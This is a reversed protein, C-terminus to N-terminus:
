GGSIAPVIEVVDGDQLSHSRAGHLLMRDNVAFNFVSDDLQDRLGPMQADLASVLAEITDVPDEVITEAPGFSRLTVPLRVTIPVRREESLVEYSSRV